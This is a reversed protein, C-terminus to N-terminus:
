RKVPKLRVMLPHKEWVLYIKQDPWGEQGEALELDFHWLISAMILRMEAYALNRGICNRPGFSFPQLADRRDRAWRPDDPELFREPAFTDPEAFNAPSRFQALQHIGVVTNGPVWRGLINAGEPPTQRALNSAVPPYMRLAEDFFALLYKLESISSLSIESPDSFRGRVEAVARAYVHPNTLLYYTGGSLLTATTESGAIVLTPGQSVLDERVLKGAQEAAVLHTMFDTYSPSIARRRLVLEGAMNLTSLRGARVRAPIAYLLLAGLRDEIRRLASLMASGKIASFMFEVWPHYESNKLCNFSEAFCLHGIIDFTTFNFWRVLDTGQPDNQAAREHLRQILLDIYSKIVPEQEKMSKESFANSLLRRLKSHQDRDATIISPHHPDNDNNLAYLKGNEAGSTRHGYIDKWAQPDTYVIEDPAIRVVHGYKQHLEHVRFTLDGKFNHYQSWLINAKAYWPGPYSRLPHLFINYFSLSVLILIGLGAGCFPVSLVDTSDIGLM